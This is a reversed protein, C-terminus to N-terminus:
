TRALAILHGPVEELWVARAGASTFLATLTVRDFLHVHGPNSDPRSPVSAIVFRRAVRVAESAALRPDPLHELVELVTAGDFADDDYRLSTADMPLVALRPLWGHAFAALDTARREDLDIATVALDGFADLLPWLFAGRGSGVDLLTAPALEALLALVCRIRAMLRDDLRRFKHMPLGRVLGERLAAADGSTTMDGLRSRAFAAGLALYYRDLHPEM